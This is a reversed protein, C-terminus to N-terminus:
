VRSVLPQDFDRGGGVARERDPRTHREDEYAPLQTEVARVLAWFEQEPLGTFAKILEPNERLTKETIITGM